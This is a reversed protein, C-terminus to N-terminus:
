AALQRCQGAMQKCQSAIQGFTRRITGGIRPAVQYAVMAGIAAFGIIARKM